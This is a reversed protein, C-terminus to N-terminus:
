SVKFAAALEYTVVDMPTRLKWVIQIPKSGKHQALDALGLIKFGGESERVCILVDHKSIPQNIYREGTKSDDATANQSEWHFDVKSQAFDKYKTTASNGAKNLNVFLVDLDLEEVFSVGVPHGAAKRTKKGSDGELRAWTVAGLIESRLYTAHAQLPLQDVKFQIPAVVSLARKGVEQLIELWEQVVEPYQTLLDFAESAKDVMGINPLKADPWLMWFLMSTSQFPVVRIGAADFEQRKLISSYENIRTQDDIHLFKKGLTALEQWGEKLDSEKVLGSNVKLQLWSTKGYFEDLDLGSDSLFDNLNQSQLQKALNQLRSSSYNLQQKINDLVRQAAISDLNISMGGPLMPFGLEVQKSLQGPALGTLAEFKKDMRFESRHSEIFDLVVVSEKNPHRRLGRGLQQLFVVSSETPRLMIVSDVEPIDVGENFIDVTVIANLQGQALDNIAKTRESDSNSGSLARAKIGQSVLLESIYTAHETGVCFVLAKMEAPNPICKAIQKLLLHDRLDNRTVKKELESTSYGGKSWEISTFDTDEAIGFYDFPALLQREMADWLRLESTIVGDFYLDQVRKGDGREPTATLALLEKPKFHDLIDQYTNAAARHFEDIVIYDFQDAPFSKVDASALSQVSAFVYRWESPKKGDVFLEGFNGDKLVAKFTSMSQKLIEQRHAVFLLSPRYGLIKQSNKYDLAALVTKGTGTAAVVLNRHRDFVERQLELDELMKKQHEHPQVDINPIFLPFDSSNKSGGFRAKALHLADALKQGDHDPDYEEFYESAWYSNFAIRFTDLVEPSSTESLRVNWEMGDTLATESINSSGIYATSFGTDRGFLWAKAHLHAIDIDYNIKVAVGLERVLYDLAQKQTAGTYVTTLLRVSVNRERLKSLEDALLTIGKMRVFSMLIDVSNSSRMELNLTASMNTNQNTVLGIKSLAMPPEQSVWRRDSKSEKVLAILRNAKETDEIRQSSGLSKLIENALKIKDADKSYSSLTGDISDVLLQLIYGDLPEGKVPESNVFAFNQIEDSVHNTILEDYLGDKRETM